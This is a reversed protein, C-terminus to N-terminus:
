ASAFDSAADVALTALVAFPQLLISQRRGIKLLRHDIAFVIAAERVNHIVACLAIQGAAISALSQCGAVIQQLCKRIHGLSILHAGLDIVFGPSSTQSCIVAALGRSHIILRSELAPLYLPEPRSYVYCYDPSVIIVRRALPNKDIFLRRQAKGKSTKSAVAM